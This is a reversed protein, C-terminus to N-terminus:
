RRVVQPCWVPLVCGGCPMCTSTRRPPRLMRASADNPHHGQPPHQVTVVLKAVPNCRNCSASIVLGPLSHQLNGCAALCMLWCQLVAAGGVLSSETRGPRALHQSPCCLPLPGTSATM